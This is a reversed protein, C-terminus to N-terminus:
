ICLGSSQSVYMPVSNQWRLQSTARAFLMVLGRAPSPWSRLRDALYEPEDKASECHLNALVAPFYARRSAVVCLKATAFVNANLAGMASTSVVISFLLGGWSGLTRRAFEQTPTLDHLKTYLWTLSFLLRSVVAVTSSARIVDFPLCVYLAANMLCFGTIVIIMAGHIVFPLDGEPNEM